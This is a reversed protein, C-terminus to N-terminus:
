AKAGRIMIIGAYRTVPPIRECVTDILMFFPLLLGPTRRSTFLFQRVAEVRFGADRFLAEADEVTYLRDHIHPDIGMAPKILRHWPSRRNPFDIIAIGGPKLVRHTAAMASVPDPCFRITSFSFALDVSADPIGALIEADEVAFRVHDIGHARLRKEAIEVSRPSIDIATLSRFRAALLATMQGFSCGIELVRADPAAAAGCIALAMDVKRKVFYHGAGPEPPRADATGSVWESTDLEEAEADYRGTLASKIDHETTM